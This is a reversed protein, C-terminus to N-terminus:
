RARTPALAEQGGRGRAVHSFAIGEDPSATWSSNLQGQLEHELTGDGTIEQWSDVPLPLGDFGTAQKAREVQAAIAREDAQVALIETDDTIYTAKVWDARSATVSLALRKAEANKRFHATQGAENRKDRLNRMNPCNAQEIRTL